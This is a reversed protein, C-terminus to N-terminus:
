WNFSEFVHPSSKTKLDEHSLLRLENKMKGVKSVTVFVCEVKGIVNANAHTM